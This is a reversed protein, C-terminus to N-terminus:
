ATLVDRMIRQGAGGTMAWAGGSRTALLKTEAEANAGRRMRDRIFRWARDIIQAGSMVRLHKGSPLARNKLEACEPFILVRKGGVSRYKKKHVAFDHIVGPVRLKRSRASDCQFVVDGDKRWREALSKWEVRRVAGPGLARKAAMESSLRALALARPGGRQLAWGSSGCSQALLTELPEPGDILDFKDSTAEDAEVDAWV